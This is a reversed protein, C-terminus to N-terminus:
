GGAGAHDVQCAARDRMDIKLLLLVGDHREFLHLLHHLLHRLLRLLAFLAVLGFHFKFDGGLGRALALLHGAELGFFHDHLHLHLHFGGVLIAALALFAAHRHGRIHPDCRADWAVLFHAIKM